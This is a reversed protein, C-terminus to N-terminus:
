LTDRRVILAGVRGTRDDVDAFLSLPERGAGTRRPFALRTYAAGPMRPQEAGRGLLAELEARAPGAEPDLELEVLDIAGSDAARVRMREAGPVAPVGAWAPAAFALPDPALGLRAATGSASVDPASALTATRELLALVPHM